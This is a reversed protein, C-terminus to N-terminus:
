LAMDSSCFIFASVINPLRSGVSSFFVFDLRLHDRSHPMPPREIYQFGHRSLWLSDMLRNSVFCSAM